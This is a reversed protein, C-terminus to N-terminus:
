LMGHNYEDRHYKSVVIRHLKEKTYDTKADNELHQCAIQGWEMKSAREILDIDCQPLDDPADFLWINRKTEM